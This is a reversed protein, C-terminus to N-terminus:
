IIITEEGKWGEAEKKLRETISHLRNGCKRINELIIQFIDEIILDGERLYMPPVMINLIKWQMPLESVSRM